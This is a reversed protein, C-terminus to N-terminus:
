RWIDLVRLQEAESRGVDDEVLENGSVPSVNHGLVDSAIDLAVPRNELALISPQVNLKLKLLM